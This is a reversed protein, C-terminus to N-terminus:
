KNGEEWLQEDYASADNTPLPPRPGRNKDWFKKGAASQCRSREISFGLEKAWDYMLKAIGRGRYNTAVKLSEAHLQTKYHDFKALGICVGAANRARIIFYEDEITANLTLGSRETHTGSMALNHALDEAGELIIETIKM